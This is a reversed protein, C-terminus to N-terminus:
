LGVYLRHVYRIFSFQFCIFHVITKLNMLEEVRVAEGIYQPEVVVKKAYKLKFYLLLIIDHM